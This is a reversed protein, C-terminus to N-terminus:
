SALPVRSSVLRAPTVFSKAETHGKQHRGQRQLGAVPPALQLRQAAIGVPPAQAGCSLRRCWHANGDVMGRLRHQWGSPTTMDMSNSDTTTLAWSGWHSAAMCHAPARIALKPDTLGRLWCAM